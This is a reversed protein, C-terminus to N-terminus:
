RLSYPLAYPFPREITKPYSEYFTRIAEALNAAPPLVRPALDTQTGFDALDMAGQEVTSFDWQTEPIEGEQHAEVTVEDVAAPPSEATQPEVSPRVTAAGVLLPRQLGAFPGRTSARIMRQRLPEPWVVSM